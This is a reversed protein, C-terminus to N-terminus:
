ARVSGTVVWSSDQLGRFELGRPERFPVTIWCKCVVLDSMLIRDEFSARFHGKLGEAERRMM